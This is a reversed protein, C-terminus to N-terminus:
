VNPNINPDFNLSPTLYVGLKEVLLFKNIVYAANWCSSTDNFLNFLALRLDTKIDFSLVTKPTRLKTHKLIKTNKQESEYKGRNFRPFWLRAYCSYISLNEAKCFSWCSDSSTPYYLMRTIIRSFTTSITYEVNITEEVFVSLAKM